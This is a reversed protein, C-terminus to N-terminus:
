IGSVARYLDEKTAGAGFFTEFTDQNVQWQGLLYAEADQVTFPTGDDYYGVVHDNM